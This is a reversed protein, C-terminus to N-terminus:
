GCRCIMDLFSTSDLSAGGILLGDVDPQALLDQCNAPKASGGYLLPLGEALNGIRNALRERLFRHAQQAIDPTATKGTGIAWVPEYALAWDPNASARGDPEALECLAPCHDLVAHLQRGLVAETQGAEREALTEGVCVMPSLGGSLAALTKAAVLQDSEGHEQRRESHGCLAWTAGVSRSQQASVDGTHAGSANQHLDQAGIEVPTGRLSSALSALFPFAPFLVVKTTPAPNCQHSPQAYHRQLHSAFAACDAQRLNMKWNGALIMPRQHTPPTTNM